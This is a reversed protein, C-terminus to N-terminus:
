LAIGCYGLKKDKKLRCIKEGKKEKNLCKDEDKVSKDDNNFKKCKKKYEKLEKNKYKCSKVEVYECKGGKKKNKKCPKKELSSCDVSNPSDTPFDTSPVVTAVSNPPDTPSDTSTAATTVVLKQGGGQCHNGGRGNATCMFYRTGGENFVMTKYPIFEGDNGPDCELWAKQTFVEILNHGGGFDWSIEDNVQNSFTFVEGGSTVSEVIRTDTLVVLNKFDYVWPITYTEADTFSLNMLSLICPIIQSYKMKNFKL